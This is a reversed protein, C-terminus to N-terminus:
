DSCCLLSLDLPFLSFCWRILFTERFQGEVLRNGVALGSAPSPSRRPILGRMDKSMSWVGIIRLIPGHALVVPLPFIPLSRANCALHVHAASKGLANAATSARSRRPSSIDPRGMRNTPLAAVTLHSRTRSLSSRCCLPRTEGPGPRLITSLCKATAIPLTLCGPRADHCVTPPFSLRSSPHSSKRAPIFSLSSFASATRCSLHSSLPLARPTNLLHKTPHTFPHILHLFSAIQPLCVVM